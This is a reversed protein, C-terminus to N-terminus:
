ELYRMMYEARHISKNGYWDGFGCYHVIAPNDTFGTAFNENYRVDVPVFKNMGVYHWADQDAYPQEFANLYAVMPEQAGDWRMQELNLVAVGMNYYEDGFPKYKGTYEPVAGVWKGTLDTEWLGTLRDCIITDIDFHIVKDVPLIAPYCVKLLNIYGFRTKYNPGDKSFWTQGSVNIFECDMPLGDIRDDECLVFVRAGPEHEKLSRMSPIIWPYVNRTMAYVINMPLYFRAM